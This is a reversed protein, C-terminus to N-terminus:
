APYQGPYIILAVTLDILGIEANGEPCRGWCCTQSLLPLGNIPFFESARNVPYAPLFSAFIYDAQDIMGIGLTLDDTKILAIFLGFFRHYFLIKGLLRLQALGVAKIRQM